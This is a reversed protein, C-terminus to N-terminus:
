VWARLRPRALKVPLLEPSSTLRVGSWVRVSMQGPGREARCEIVSMFVAAINDPETVGLDSGARAPSVPGDEGSDGPDGGGLEAGEAVGEVGPWM